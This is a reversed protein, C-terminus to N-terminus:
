VNKSSHSASTDSGALGKGVTKSKHESVVWIEPDHHQLYQERRIWGRVMSWSIWRKEPRLALYIHAAIMTVFLVGAAGHIVYVYGWTKDALLYPNREWFPTDVRVMMLLGTVIIGLGAVATAHHYLKNEVPYKGPKGPEPADKDGLLRRASNATDVIDRRTIWMSKLDMWFTSHIIHFVILGTLVLGTVWHTTVWNFQIGLIPLFATGLLIFMTVSMGWHFIRAILSHREVREPIGVGTTRAVDSENASPGVWIRRAAMDGFIFLVGAAAALYLTNWHLGTLNLQGWPNLGWKLLEM